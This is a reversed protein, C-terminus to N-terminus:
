GGKNRNGGQAKVVAHKTELARAIRTNIELDGINDVVKGPKPAPPRVKKPVIPSGFVDVVDQYALGAAYAFARDTDGNPECEPSSADGVYFSSKVDAIPAVVFDAQLLNVLFTWCLLKADKYSQRLGLGESPHMLQCSSM